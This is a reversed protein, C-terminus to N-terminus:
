SCVLFLVFYWNARHQPHAPKTKVSASLPKLYLMGKVVAVTDDHKYLAYVRM